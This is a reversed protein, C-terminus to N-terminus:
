ITSYPFSTFLLLSYIGKVRSDKKLQSSIENRMRRADSINNCQRVSRILREFTREDDAPTLRIFSTGGTAHGTRGGSEGGRRTKSPVAHEDLAARLKKVNKRDQLVSAGAAEILQNWTDPDSLLVLVPHLVACSVIETVLISVVASNRECDPLLVPLLKRVIGRLHDQQALKMDSHGLAAAKHLKGEKYKGAIALDLEESETLVKNFHKGRVAREAATIDALHTTLLPVVRNVVLEVVDTDLLRDRLAALAHHITRKVHATFAPDHSIAQYWSKVFNGIILDVLSELSESVVFSPPYLPELQHEDLEKLLELEQAWKDPRTFAFPKIGKLVEVEDDYPSPQKTTLILAVIGVVTLIVGFNFTYVFYRLLPLHKVVVHLSFFACISAAVLLKRYM